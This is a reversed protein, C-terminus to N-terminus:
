VLPLDFCDHVGCLYILTSPSARATSDDWLCIHQKSVEEELPDHSYPQCTPSALQCEQASLPILLRVTFTYQSVFIFAVGTMACIPVNM